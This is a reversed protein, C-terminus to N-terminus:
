YKPGMSRFELSEAEIAAGSKLPFIFLNQVHGVLVWRKRQLLTQISQNYLIFCIMVKALIVMVTGVSAFGALTLKPNSKFFEFIKTFDIMKLDFGFM